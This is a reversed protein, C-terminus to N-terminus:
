TLLAVLEEVTPGTSGKGFSMQLNLAFMKDFSVGRGELYEEIEAPEYRTVIAMVGFMDAADDIRLVKGIDGYLGMATRTSAGRCVRFYRGPLETFPHKEAVLRGFSNLDLEDSPDEGRRLLLQYEEETVMEEEIVALIEEADGDSLVQTRPDLHESRIATAVDSQATVDLAILAESYKLTRELGSDAIGYGGSVGLIAEGLQLWYRKAAKGLAKAFANVRDLPGFLAHAPRYLRGTGKSALLIEFDEHNVVHEHRARLMKDWVATIRALDEPSDSVFGLAFSLGDVSVGDCLLDMVRGKGFRRLLSGAFQQYGARSSRWGRDFKKTLGELAKEAIENPVEESNIVAVRLEIDGNAWREQVEEPAVGILDHTRIVATVKEHKRALLVKQHEPELEAIRDLLASIVTPSDSKM